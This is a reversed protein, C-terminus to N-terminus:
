RLAFLLKVVLKSYLELSLTVSEKM